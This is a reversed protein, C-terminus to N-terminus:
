AGKKSKQAKERKEAEVSAKMLEFEQDVLSEMQMISDEDFNALADWEGAVIVTSHARRTTADCTLHMCAGPKVLRNEDFPRSTPASSTSSAPAAANNTANAEM